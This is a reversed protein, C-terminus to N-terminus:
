YDLMYLAALIIRLAEVDKCKAAVSFPSGRSCARDKLQAKQEQSLSSLISDARAQVNQLGEMNKVKLGNRWKKVSASNSSTPSDSALPRDTVGFNMDFLHKTLDSKVVIKRRKKQLNRWTPQIPLLCAVLLVHNIRKLWSLKLCGSRFIRTRM